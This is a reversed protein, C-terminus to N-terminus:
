STVVFIESQLYWEFNGLLDSINGDKNQWTLGGDISSFPVTLDLSTGTPPTDRPAVCYHRLHNNPNVKFGRASASGGGGLFFSRFEWTFFDKTMAYVVEPNTEQDMLGIYIGGNEPCFTVGPLHGRAFRSNFDILFGNRWTAWLVGGWLMSVDARSVLSDNSYVIKSDESAYNEVALVTAGSPDRPDIFMGRIGKKYVTQDLAILNEAPWTKGNDDSRAVYGTYGFGVGQWDQSLTAYVRSGNDSYFVRGERSDSSVPPEGPAILTPSPFRGFLFNERDDSLAYNWTGSSGGFSINKSNYKVIISSDVPSVAISMLTNIMKENPLLNAVMEDYTLITEWNIDAPDSALLNETKYVNREFINTRDITYARNPVRPDIVFADGPYGGTLTLDPVL